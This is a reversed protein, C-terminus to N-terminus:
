RMVVWIPFAACALLTGFPLRTDGSVARGRAAFVLVMGLGVASAGLLVYPLVQWGLWLGIAGFLKPDGGGLGDRKRIRRYALAILALTAWAAAGGVLRDQWLPAIGCAMGGLGVVALAGTLRDPLWFHRFDLVALALLLWGSLAGFAGEIGPAVAMATAGLAACGIEMAAHLPDIRAGCARCKGQQLTASALPFLDYWRLGAGCSDCASRGGLGRGDPWRLVLTSLFSGAILGGLAGIAIWAPSM